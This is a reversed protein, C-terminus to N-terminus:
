LGRLLCRPGRLLSQPAAQSIAPLIVQPRTASTPAPGSFTSRPSRPPTLEQLLQGKLELACLLGQPKHSMLMKAKKLSFFYYKQPPQSGGITLSVGPYLPSPFHFYSGFQTSVVSQPSQALSSPVTVWPQLAGWVTSGATLM